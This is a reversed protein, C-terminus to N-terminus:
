RENDPRQGPRTQRTGNTEIMENTEVGNVSQKMQASVNEYFYREWDTFRECFFFFSIGVYLNCILYLLHLWQM